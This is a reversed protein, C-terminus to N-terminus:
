GRVGGGSCGLVPLSDGASQWCTLRLPMLTKTTSSSGSAPCSTDRSSRWQSACTITAEEAAPWQVKPQGCVPVHQDAVYAHGARIAVLEDPVNKRDSNDGCILWTGAIAGIGGKGARLIAGAGHKRPILCM